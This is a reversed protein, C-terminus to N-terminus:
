AMMNRKHINLRKYSFILISVAFVIGIESLWRVLAKGAFELDGAVIGMGIMAASPVLSLGVMAGATLISRYAATLIVGATAATASSLLSSGSLSSYYTMLASSSVYKNQDDFSSLAKLLLSALIAGIILATYGKLLDISGRRIAHTQTVCGLGARSISEFGPSIIQAALILELAGGSLGFTALAGGCLMLGIGNASMNGEKAMSFEIEELSAESVDTAFADSFPRSYIATPESTMLGTESTSGIGEQALMRLLPHYARNITEAVVVDGPPQLSAGRFLRLSIIFERQKLKEVLDATRDAPVTLQVIRAM